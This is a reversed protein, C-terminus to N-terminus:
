CNTQRRVGLYGVLAPTEGGDKLPFIADDNWIVMEEPNDLSLVFNRWSMLLIQRKNRFGTSAIIEFNGETNTALYAGPAQLQDCITALIMELFQSLDSRTILREELSRLQIL